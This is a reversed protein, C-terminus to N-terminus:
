NGNRSSLVKVKQEQIKGLSEIRLKEKEPNSESVVLVNDEINELIEDPLLYLLGTDYYSKDDDILAQSFGEVLAYAFDPDSLKEAFTPNCQYWYNFSGAVLTTYNNFAYNLIDLDTQYMSPLYRIFEMRHLGNEDSEFFTRLVEKIYDKDDIIEKSTNNLQKLSREEALTSM